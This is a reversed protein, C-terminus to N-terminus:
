CQRSRLVKSRSILEAERKGVIQGAERTVVAANVGWRSAHYTLAAKKVTDTFLSQFPIPFYEV